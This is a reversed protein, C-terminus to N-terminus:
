KNYISYGTVNSVKWHFRSPVMKLFCRSIASLTKDKNQKIINIKIWKRLRRNETFKSILNVSGSLRSNVTTCSLLSLSFIEAFYKVQM